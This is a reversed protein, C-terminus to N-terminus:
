EAACTKRKRRAEAAAAVTASTTSSLKDPPQTCAGRLKEPSEKDHSSGKTIAEEAATTLVQEDRKISGSAGRAEAEPANVKETGVTAVMSNENIDDVGHVAARETNDAERYSQM